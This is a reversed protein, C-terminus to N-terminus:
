RYLLSSRHSPRLLPQEGLFSCASAPCHLAAHTSFWVRAKSAWSKPYENQPGYSSIISNKLPYQGLRPELLMGTSLLSYIFSSCFCFSWKPVKEPQRLLCIAQTQHHNLYIPGGNARHSQPLMVTTTLAGPLPSPLHNTSHCAQHVLM